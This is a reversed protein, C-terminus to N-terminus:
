HVEIPQGHAYRWIMVVAVNTEAYIGLSKEDATYAEFGTPGRPVIFGICEGRETISLINSSQDM